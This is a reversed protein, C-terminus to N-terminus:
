KGKRQGREDGDDDPDDIGQTLRSQQQRLFGLVLIGLDLKGGDGL